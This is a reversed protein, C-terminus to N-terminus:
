WNNNLMSLLLIFVPLEAYKRIYVATALYRALLVKFYM